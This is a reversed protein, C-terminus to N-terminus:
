CGINCFFINNWWYTQPSVFGGQGIWRDIIQCSTIKVERRRWSTRSSQRTAATSWMTKSLWNRRSQCSGALGCCWTRTPIVEDIKTSIHTSFREHPHHNSRAWGPWILRPGSNRGKKDISWHNELICQSLGSIHVQFPNLYSIPDVFQLPAWRTLRPCDEISETPIM